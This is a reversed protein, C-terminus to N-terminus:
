IYTNGGKHIKGCKLIVYIALALFVPIIFIIIETIRNLRRADRYIIEVATSELGTIRRGRVLLRHSNVGYPTCTLLTCYDMEPDIELAQIQDPEVVQIFDVQYTLTESLIYLEFIDGEAMKDLNTLLTSSPLGRHGAIVSHTGTGGIPLSSGPWHGLGVQLSGESTGHYIPLRLNLKDIVLVGMVDRGTNLLEYYEAMEEESPLFRNPKGFLSRNYERAAELLAETDEKDLSVADSLYQTVVRSQSRSNFYNSVTPYLLVSLGILFILAISIYFIVKKMLRERGGGRLM